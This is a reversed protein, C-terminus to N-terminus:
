SKSKNNIEMLSTVSGYRWARLIVKIFVLLQSVLFLLFVAGGTAPKWIGTIKSFLWGYLLTVIMIILMMPFSSGLRGFAESFGFGLAKFFVPKEAAILWARAYDAVLLLIVLWAMFVSGCIIEIIMKLSGSATESKVLLGAPVAVIMLGTFLIILVIILYLGLFYWFYKASARFFCPVSLVASSGSLSKFLGGALFTNILIGLFVLFFLGSSFYSLLSYFYQELDTIVDINIGNRLLATITSSGFGTKLIGKMPIVYLSVLALSIFWIIMICKWSRMARAAGSGISRFIKM